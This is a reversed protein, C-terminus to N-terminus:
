DLPCGVWITPVGNSELYHVGEMSRYHNLYYVKAIGSDLLLQACSKCCSHTLFVSCGVSSETSKALNIILNMEAHHVEPRTKLKYFGEEDELPFQERLWKLTEESVQQSGDLLYSFEERDYEKYECEGSVGTPLGNYGTGIVMNNKVAVAGVKLRIASSTEAVAQAIRTYMETHKSKM